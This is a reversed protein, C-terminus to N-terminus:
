FGISKKVGKAWPLELEAYKILDNMFLRKAKGKRNSAEQCANQIVLAIQSGSFQYQQALPEIQIDEAGPIEKKLYMKWLKKRCDLDPLNFKLKLNFRRFFAEDINSELNTTLILIGPFTELEELIISQVSNEISGCTSHASIRNHILQDAENIVFIPSQLNELIIANMDTFAKKVLKETEGYYKNRLESIRLKLLERHLENALVGASYTKGTGPAGYLLIVLGQKTNTKGTKFGWKHMTKSQEKQCQNVIVSFLRKDEEPIILDNLTQKTECKEFFSNIGKYGAKGNTISKCGMDKLAGESVELFFTNYPFNHSAKFIIGKTILLSDNNLQNQLHLRKRPDPCLSLILDTETICERRFLQFYLVLMIISIQLEGLNYQLVLSKIGLNDPASFIKEKLLKLCLSIVPYELIASRSCRETFSNYCLDLIKQLDNFFDQNDQWNDLLCSELDSSLDRGLIKLMFSNSLTYDISQLLFPNLYYNGTINEDFSIINRELLSIIYNLCESVKFEDIKASLCIDSWISRLGSRDLNLQWLDTIVMVDQETLNYLKFQPHNILSLIYKTLEKQEDESKDTLSSSAEANRKNQKNRNRQTNIEILKQLIDIPRMVENQM